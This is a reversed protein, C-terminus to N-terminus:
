NTLVCQVFLSWNTPKSSYWRNMKLFLYKKKMKSVKQQSKWRAQKTVFWASHSVILTIARSNKWFLKAINQSKRFPKPYFPLFNLLKCYCRWKNEYRIALFKFKQIEFRSLFLDFNQWSEFFVSFTSFHM